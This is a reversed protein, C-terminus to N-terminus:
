SGSTTRIEVADLGFERQKAVIAVAIRQREDATKANEALLQLAKIVERGNVAAADGTNTDGNGFSKEVPRSVPGGPLPQAEIAELRKKLDALVGENSRLTAQAQDLAAKTTSLEGELKTIDIPAPADAPTDVKETPVDPTEVVSAAKETACAAGLKVANDHIATLLEEDTRSHRRGAKALALLSSVRKVVNTRDAAAAAAAAKVEDSADSPLVDDFQGMFESILFALVLESAGRLLEIQALDEPKPEQGSEKRWAAEWVESSVLEQLFNIAALANKIDFHEIRKLVEEDVAAAADPGTILLAKETRETAVAAALVRVDAITLKAVPVAEEVVDASKTADAPDILETEEETLEQAVEPTEGTMKVITLGTGPCAGSDVVSLEGMSQLLLRTQTGNGVKESKKLARAGISYDKLTGDLIKLWTDEAGKSIYSEVIVQKNADDFEVKVASGVAIPQHMERINGKWASFCKKATDYDVVEGHADLCEATAVGRIIRKDKDVKLIPITLQVDVPKMNLTGSM